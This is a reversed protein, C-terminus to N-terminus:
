DLGAINIANKVKGERKANYEDQPALAEDSQTRGIDGESNEAAPTIKNKV